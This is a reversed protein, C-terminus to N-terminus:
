PTSRLRLTFAAWKTRGFELFPGTRDKTDRVGVTGTPSSAVEVCNADPETYSSTRWNTYKQTM